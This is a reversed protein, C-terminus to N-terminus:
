VAPLAFRLIFSICWHTRNGLAIKRKGALSAVLLVRQLQRLLPAGVHDAVRVARLKRILDHVRAVADIRGDAHDTLVVVKRRLMGVALLLGEQHGLRHKRGPLAHGNRQHVAVEGLLELQVIGGVRQAIILHVVASGIGLNRLRLPAVRVALHRHRAARRPM